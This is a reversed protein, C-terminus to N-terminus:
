EELQRKLKNVKEMLYDLELNANKPNREMIELAKKISKITNEM